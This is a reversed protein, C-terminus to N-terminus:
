HGCTLMRHEDICTWSGGHVTQPRVHPYLPELFPWSVLDPRRRITDCERRGWIVGTDARGPGHSWYDNRFHALVPASLRFWALTSMGSVLDM